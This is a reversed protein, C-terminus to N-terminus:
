DAVLVRAAARSIGNMGLRVSHIDLTALTNDTWVALWEDRQQIPSGPRDSKLELLAAAPWAQSGAGGAVLISSGTPLGNTSLRHAMLNPGDVVDDTTWLLLNLARNTDGTSRRNRDPTATPHLSIQELGNVIEPAYDDESTEIVPFQGGLPGGRPLGSETLRTGYIDKNGSRDDTFLVLYSDADLLDRAIAPDEATGPGQAVPFAPGRSRRLAFDVRIGMVDGADNTDQSWVILYEGGRSGRALLSVDPYAQDGPGGAILMPTGSPRGNAYLRQAYLDYDAGGVPQESYVLMGEMVAPWRQDGKTPAPSGYRTPPLRTAEWEGGTAGGVPIGNSRVRKAYLRNGGGRDESWVLLLEQRDFLFAIDPDIQDRPASQAATPSAPGKSLFLLAAAGVLVVLLRRDVKIGWM